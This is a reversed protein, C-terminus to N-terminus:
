KVENKLKNKILVPHDTQIVNAGNKILEKLSKDDGQYVKLDTVGLANIWIRAGRSRILQCIESTNTKEDIHVIEPQYTDLVWQVDEKKHVRPMIMWKKHDRDVANLVATDSDFFIVDKFSGYKKIVELVKGVQDTKMDLDFVARGKSFQLVEQLTPIKEGSLSDGKKLYLTKLDALTWKEIDGKGNTTRDVKQDHMIVPIGDKTIRVDIEIIDVGNSIAHEIALLSNEPAHTHFARHAAVWTGSTNKKFDVKGTSGTRCAVVVGALLLLITISRKM